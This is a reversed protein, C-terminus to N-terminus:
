LYCPLLVFMMEFSKCLNIVFDSLFIITMDMGTSVYVEKYMHYDVHYDNANANFELIIKVM